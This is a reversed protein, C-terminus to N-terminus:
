IVIIFTRRRNRFYGQMLICLIVMYDRNCFFRVVGLSDCKEWKKGLVLEPHDPGYLKVLLPATLAYNVRNWQLIVPEHHRWNSCMDRFTRWLSPVPFATACALLWMEFLVSIM